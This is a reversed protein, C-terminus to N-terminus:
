ITFTLRITLFVLGKANTHSSPNPLFTKDLRKKFVKNETHEQVITMETIGNIDNWKIDYCALDFAHATHM